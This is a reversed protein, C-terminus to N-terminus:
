EKKIDELLDIGTSGGLIIDAIIVYPESKRIAELAQSYDNAIQVEYGEKELHVKFGFCISEEDDVILIKSDM